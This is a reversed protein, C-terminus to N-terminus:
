KIMLVRFITKNNKYGIIKIYGQKELEAYVKNWDYLDINGLFWEGYQGEVEVSSITDIKFFKTLYEIRNKAEKVQIDFPLRVVGQKSEIGLNKRYQIQWALFIAISLCIIAIIKLIRESIYIKLKPFFYTLLTPVIGLLFLWQKLVARIFEYIDKFTDMGWRWKRRIPSLNNLRNM